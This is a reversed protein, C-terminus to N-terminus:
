TAKPTVTAPLSYCRRGDGRVFYPGRQVVAEEWPLGAAWTQFKESRIDSSLLGPWPSRQQSAYDSSIAKIAVIIKGGPSIVRTCGGIGAWQLNDGRYLNNERAWDTAEKIKYYENKM